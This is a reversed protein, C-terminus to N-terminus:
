WLGASGKLKGAKRVLHTLKWNRKEEKKTGTPRYGGLTDGFFAAAEEKGFRRKKEGARGDRAGRGKHLRGSPGCGKGHEQIPYLEKKKQQGRKQGAVGWAGKKEPYDCLSDAPGIRTGKGGLQAIRGAGGMRANM